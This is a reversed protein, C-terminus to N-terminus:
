FLVEFRRGLWPAVGGEIALRAVGLGVVAVGGGYGVQWGRAAVGRKGRKPKLGKPAMPDVLRRMASLAHYGAVGLIAAYGLAAKVRHSPTSLAYAVLSFSLLTPSLSSIPPAPSSPLIRHHFAHSLTLPILIYGTLHTLTIPGLFTSLASSPSPIVAAAAPTPPAEALEDVDEQSENVDVFPPGERGVRLEVAGEDLFSQEAEARVDKRRERRRVRREWSKVVRGVVGSALHLGLSGWVVVIESFEGQYWVRGLLM